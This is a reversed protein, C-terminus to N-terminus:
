GGPVGLFECLISVAKEVESFVVHEHNTHAYAIDGPGFVAATHGSEAYIAADTAYNAVTSSVGTAAVLRAILSNQVNSDLPPGALYPANVQVTDGLHGRVEQLLDDQSDGPLSRIDVHAEARDPIVNAAQGGHITNVSMTRSGLEADTVKAWQKSLTELRAIAKALPYIANKGLQPTASHCSKGDASLVFRMVGKHRTLVRNNTPEGAIVLDSKLQKRAARSGAFGVEEDCIAAFILNYDCRKARHALMTTYAFAAVSAKTDCSGRGAIRGDPTEEPDFPDSDWDDASVTDTHASLVITQPKGFDLHAYLNPRGLLVDATEAMPVIRMLYDCVSAEGFAGEV